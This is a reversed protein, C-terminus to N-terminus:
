VGSFASFGGDIPPLMGPAVRAGSCLKKTKRSLQHLLQMIEVKSPFDLFATPEDLFMIPTEQALAKIMVRTDDCDSLNQPILKGKALANIILVRHSISKSSPLQVTSKIQSPFSLRYHQM